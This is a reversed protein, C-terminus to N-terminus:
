PVGGAADIAKLVARLEVGNQENWEMEHEEQEAEPWQSLFDSREGQLEDRRAELAAIDSQLGSGIRVGAASLRDVVEFYRVSPAYEGNISRQPVYAYNVLISHHWMSRYLSVWICEKM